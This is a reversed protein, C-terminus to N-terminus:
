RPATTPHAPVSVCTPAPGSTLKPQDLYEVTVGGFNQTAVPLVLLDGAPIDSSYGTFKGGGDNVLVWHPNAPVAPAPLADISPCNSSVPVVVVRDGLSRLKANAQGIGSKQYVAVTVTGNANNTVAYAPSAGGTMMVGVATGIAAIGGVAASLRVRHAVRRKPATPMRTAALEPGHERILDDFLQDTFRTM